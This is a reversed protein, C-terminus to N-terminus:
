AHQKSIKQAFAQWMSGATSFVLCHRASWSASRSWASCRDQKREKQARPSSIIRVGALAAASLSRGACLLSLVLCSYHVCTAPSPASLECISAWCVPDLRELDCMCSMGRRVTSCLRADVEVGSFGPLKLVDHGVRHFDLTSPLARVRLYSSIMQCDSGEAMFQHRIKDAFSLFSSRRSAVLSGMPLATM